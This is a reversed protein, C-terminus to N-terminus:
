LKEEKPEEDAEIWQICGDNFNWAEKRKSCFGLTIIDSPIFSVKCFDPMKEWYKCTECRLSKRLESAGANYAEKRTPSVDHTDMTRNKIIYEIEFDEYKKM